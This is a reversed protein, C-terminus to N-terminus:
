ISEKKGAETLIEEGVSKSVTEIIEDGLDRTATIIFGDSEKNEWVDVKFQYDKATPIFDIEENTDSPKKLKVFSTIEDKKPIIDPTAIAQVYKGKSSKFDKQRQELSLIDDTITM